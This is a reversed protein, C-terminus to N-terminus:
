FCNLTKALKVLQEQSSRSFFYVFIFRRVHLIFLDYGYHLIVGNTEHNQTMFLFLIYYSFSFNRKRCDSIDENNNSANKKDLPRM